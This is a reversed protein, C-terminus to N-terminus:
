TKVFALDLPIILGKYGQLRNRFSDTICLWLTANVELWVSQNFIKEPWIECSQTPSWLRVSWDFINKPMIEYSQTPCWLWITCHFFCGKEYKTHNLQVESGLAYFIDSLRMEYSQTPSLALNVLFFDRARKEFTQPSRLAIIMCIDRLRM